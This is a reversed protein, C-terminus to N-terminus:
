ATIKKCVDKVICTECAPKQSYCSDRGIEWLSFDILGPFDPYLERAKYIIQEAKANAPVLGIRAMVRRIHTDVSIDISYRDALPVKFQRGLINVAM